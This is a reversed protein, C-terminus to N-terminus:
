LQRGKKKQEDVKKSLSIKTKGGLFSLKLQLSFESGGDKKIDVAMCNRLTDLM